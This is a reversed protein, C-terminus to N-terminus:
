TNVHEVEELISSYATQLQEAAQVLFDMELAAQHMEESLDDPLPFVEEQNEMYDSMEDIWKRM